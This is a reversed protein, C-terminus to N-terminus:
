VELCFVQWILCGETPCGELCCSGAGVQVYYEWRIIRIIICM